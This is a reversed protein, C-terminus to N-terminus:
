RKLGYPRLLRSGKWYELLAEGHAAPLLGQINSARWAEAIQQLTERVTALTREGDAGVKEALRLFAKEDVELLQKRGSFRLALSRKLEWAITCVQDYLPSLQARIGDPYLLSWNKLHADENGSAVMFALRRVFELYAEEGVIQRVLAACQEYSIQDYKRRPQLNTVQAFDEQHLRATGDRDYRRIVLVNTGPTAYARLSTSLASAPQVYCEPVDFGAGRAWELTAYENAVLEPFRASDLKAIWEGQQGHVPLVLREGERLVSFKLQVGALSFRFGPEDVESESPGEVSPEDGNTEFEEADGEGTQIEVAGPLDQGVAALLALDDGPAIELSAEILERLPGEPVLNAFFAPLEPRKGHYVKELDDEFSQSLVPRWGRRRYEESFRFSVRGRGDESLHGVLIEGLAVQLSRL